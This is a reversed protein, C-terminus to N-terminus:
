YEKERKGDKRMKEDHVFLEFKVALTCVLQINFDRQQSKHAVFVFFFVVVIKKRKASIM